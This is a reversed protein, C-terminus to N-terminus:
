PRSKFESGVMGRFRTAREMMEPDGSLRAISEFREVAEHPDGAKMASSIGALEEGIIVDIAGSAYRRAEDPALGEIRLELYLLRADARLGDPITKLWTLTAIITAEAAILDLSKEIM